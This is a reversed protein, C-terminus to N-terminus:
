GQQITENLSRRLRNRRWRQFLGFLLFLLAGLAFQGAVIYYRARMSEGSAFLVYYPRDVRFGVHKYLAIIEGPLANRRLVGSGVPGFELEKTNLRELEVFYRINQDDAGRAIVPAFYIYHQTVILNEGFGSAKKYLIDGVLSTKGEAPSISAPTALNIQQETGSDSPLNFMLLLTILAGVVGCTALGFLWRMLRTSAAIARGGNRAEPMQEAKAQRRKYILYVIVPLGAIAILIAYTFTPFYREFVGFQWEALFEIFGQYAVTEWLFFLAVLSVWITLLRTALTRKRRDSNETVAM